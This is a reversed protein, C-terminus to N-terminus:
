ADQGDSLDEPKLGAVGQRLEELEQQKSIWREVAENCEDIKTEAQRYNRAVQRALQSLHQYQQWVDSYWIHGPARNHEIGTKAEELASWFPELVDADSPYNELLAFAREVNPEIELRIKDYIMAEAKSRETLPLLENAWRQILAFRSGAPARQAMQKVLRPEYVGHVAQAQRVTAWHTEMAQLWEPMRANIGGALDFLGAHDDGDNDVATVEVELQKETVTRAADALRRAMERVAKRYISSGPDELRLTTWDEYQYKSLLAILENPNGDNFEPIEAYLIPM